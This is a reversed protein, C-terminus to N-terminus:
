VSIEIYFKFDLELLTLRQQKSNKNLYICLLKLKLMYPPTKRDPVQNLYLLTLRQRHRLGVKLKNKEETWTSSAEDLPTEKDPFLPLLLLSPLPWIRHNGNTKFRHLFCSLSLVLFVTKFTFHPSQDAKSASYVRRLM